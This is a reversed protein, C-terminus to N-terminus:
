VSWGRQKAEQIARELTRGEFTGLNPHCARDHLRELMDKVKMGAPRGAPWEKFLAAVVTMVRSSPEEAQKPEAGQAAPPGAEPARTEAVIAVSQPPQKAPAENVPTNASAPAAGPAAEEQRDPAAAVDGTLDVRGLDIRSYTRRKPAIVTKADRRVADATRAVRPPQPTPTRAEQPLREIDATRMEVLEYDWLRPRGARKRRCDLVLRRRDEFPIEIPERTRPIAHPVGRFPFSPDRWARQIRREGDFKSSAAEAVLTWEDEPMRARV